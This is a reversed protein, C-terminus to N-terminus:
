EKHWILTRPEVSGRPPADAPAGPDIFAAHPLFRSTFSRPREHSPVLYNLAAITARM